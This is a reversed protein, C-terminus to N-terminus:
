TNGHELTHLSFRKILKIIFDIFKFMVCEM